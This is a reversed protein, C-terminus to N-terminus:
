SVSGKTKTLAAMFDDVCIDPAKLKAPDLDMLSMNKGQPDSPFTPFMYGDVEKFRTASQCKRVPEMMAENVVISIDSGSM